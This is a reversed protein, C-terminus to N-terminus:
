RATLSAHVFDSLLIFNVLPVYTNNLLYARSRKRTRHWWSEDTVSSDPVQDESSGGNQLQAYISQHSMSELPRGAWPSDWGPSRNHSLTYSSDPPTPVVIRLGRDRIRSPGAEANKLGLAPSYAERLISPTRFVSSRKELRVHSPSDTPSFLESALMPRRRTFPFWRYEGGPPGVPPHQSVVDPEHAESSGRAGGPLQPDHYSDTPSPPEDKAWAIM